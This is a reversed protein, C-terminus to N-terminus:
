SHILFHREADAALLVIRLVTVRYFRLMIVFQVRPMILLGTFVYIWEYRLGNFLLDFEFQDM